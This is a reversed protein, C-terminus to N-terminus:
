RQGYRRWLATLMTKGRETVIPDGDKFGICGWGKLQNCADVQKLSVKRRYIGMAYAELERMHIETANAIHEKIPRYVKPKREAAVLRQFDGHIKQRRQEELTLLEEEGARPRPKEPDGYPRYERM